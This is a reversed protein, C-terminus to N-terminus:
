LNRGKGFKQPAQEYHAMAQPMLKELDNIRTGSGPHTSLFEPPAGKSIESFRKWFEIAEHPDYGAQAMYILGVLDAETEHTRGYKLMGFQGGVNFVTMLANKNPNSALGGDLVSLITSLGMHTSLRQGSHRLTAHAVEHGMVAAMGAETKMFPLIGTYVAIKGGPMCWANLQDDQILNYEWQFDPRDAVHAIRNGVDQLISYTPETKVIKATQLVEEYGQEGMQNEQAVSTLIFKKQGTEPLKVCATLVTCLTICIITKNM